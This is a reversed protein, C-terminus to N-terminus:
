VAPSDALTRLYVNRVGNYDRDIILDCEPCKFVKKGGLNNLIYGCRGCTKSTYSEDVEFVVAGYEKAKFKLFQKFKFHSWTLMSRSVKSCLTTVMNSTEFSPLLIYKYNKVLFLATKHHVEEVLNSIKFRIKDNKRRIIRREKCKVKSM